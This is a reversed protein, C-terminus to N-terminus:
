ASIVEFGNGLDRWTARPESAIARVKVDHQPFQDRLQLGARLADVFRRHQSKAKGDMQLVFCEETAIVNNMLNGTVRRRLMSRLGFTQRRERDDSSLSIRTASENQKACDGSMQPTQQLFAV